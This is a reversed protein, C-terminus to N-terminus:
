NFTGCRNEIVVVIVSSPHYDGFEHVRATIIEFGKDSMGHDGYFVEAICEALEPKIRTSISVAMGLQASVYGHQQDDNWQFFDSGTFGEASSKQPNIAALATLM